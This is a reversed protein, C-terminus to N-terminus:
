TNFANQRLQHLQRHSALNSLKSRATLFLLSTLNEFYIPMIAPKPLWDWGPCLKRYPVQFPPGKDVMVQHGLEKLAPPYILEASTSWSINGDVRSSHETLHEVMLKPWHLVLNIKLSANVIKSSIIPSKPFNISILIQVPSKHLYQPHNSLFITFFTTKFNKRFLHLANHISSTIHQLARSQIGRSQSWLLVLATLAALM